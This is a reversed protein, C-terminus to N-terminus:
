GLLLTKVYVLPPVTEALGVLPEPPATVAYLMVLAALEARKATPMLKLVEVPAKLADLRLASKLVVVTATVALLAVPATVIGTARVTLSLTGALTEYGLELRRIAVLFVARDLKLGDPFVPPVM